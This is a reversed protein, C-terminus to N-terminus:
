IISAITSIGDIAGETEAYNKNKMSLYANGVGVTGVLLGVTILTGGVWKPAPNVKVDSPQKPDFSIDVVEGPVYNKTSDVVTKATITKNENTKYKLELQYQTEKVPNNNVYTTEQSLLKSSVVTAKTRVRNSLLMAAAAYFLVLMIVVSVIAGFIANARGYTALGDTLEGNAMSM